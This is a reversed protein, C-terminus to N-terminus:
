LFIDPLSQTESFVTNNKYSNLNYIVDYSDVGSWNEIQYVIGGTELKDSNFYFNKSSLYYNRIENGVYRGLTPILCIFALFFISFIIIKLKKKM